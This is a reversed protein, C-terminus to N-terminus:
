DEPLGRSQDGAGLFPGECVRGRRRRAAEDPRGEQHAREEDTPRHQLQRVREGPCVSRPLDPPRLPGRLPPRLGARVAHGLHGRGQHRLHLKKTKSLEQLKKIDAKRDAALDALLYRGDDSKLVLAKVGTRLEVGRVRSAEESTYVPEHEYLRYEVGEKRFLDLLKSM